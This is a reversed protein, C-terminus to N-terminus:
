SISPTTIPTVFLLCVPLQQDKHTGAKLIRGQQKEEHWRLPPHYKKSLCTFGGSNQQAGKTLVQMNYVITRMPSMMWWAATKLMEKSFDTRRSINRMLPSRWLIWKDQKDKGIVQFAQFLSMLSHLKTMCVTATQLSVWIEREGAKRHVWGSCRLTM